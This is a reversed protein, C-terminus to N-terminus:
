NQISFQFGGLGYSLSIFLNSKEKWGGNFGDPKKM